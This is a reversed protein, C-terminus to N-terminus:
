TKNESDLAFVPLGLHWRIAALRLLLGATLGAWVSVNIPAGSVLFLEYTGASVVACTAYLDRQLIMPVEGALLDRLLGGFTGTMVGMLIVILTGAGAQQAKAAGLVSFFALGFADLVQLVTHNTPRFRQRVVTLLAAVTAVLVYEPSHIWFVPSSGLLLDRLTGGGIGTIIALVIVGFLDMNKRGAVLAGTVAFVATGALDILQVLNLEM